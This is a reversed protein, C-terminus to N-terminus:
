ENSLERLIPHKAQSGLPVPGDPRAMGLESWTFFRVRRDRFGVIVGDPHTLDAILPPGFETVREDSAALPATRPGAYGTLHPFRRGALSNWSVEKYAQVDLQSGRAHQTPPWLYGLSRPADNYIAGSAVVTLVFNRGTHRLNQELIEGEGDAMMSFLSRINDESRSQDIVRSARGAVVVFGVVITGAVLLSIAVRAARWSRPRRTRTRQKLKM